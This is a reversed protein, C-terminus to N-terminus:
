QMLLSLLVGREFAELFCFIVIQKQYSVIAVFLSTFADTTSKRAAGRGLQIKKTSLKLLGTTVAM